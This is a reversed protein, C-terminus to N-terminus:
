EPVPQTGAQLDELVKIRKLAEQLASTLIPIVDTYSVQQYVPNNNEDVADKEGTVANPLVEQLEHAIFGMTTHENMEYTSPKLRELLSVPEAIPRINSKLRYDSTSNFLTTGFITGVISGVPSNGTYFTCYQLGASTNDGFNVAGNGAGIIASKIGFYNRANFSEIGNGVTFKGNSTLAAAFNSTNGFQDNNRRYWGGSGLGRQNIFSTQGNFASESWQQSDNWNIYVGQPSGTTCPKGLSTDGLTSAGASINGANFTGQVTANFNINLSGYMNMNGDAKVSFVGGGYSSPQGPFCFVVNNQNSSDGIHNYVTLFSNNTSGNRGLSTYVISSTSLIAAAFTQDTNVVFTRKVELDGEQTLRMPANTFTGASNHSRWEWGGTGSGRQNAFNTQGDLGYASFGNWHIYAGQTSGTNPFINGLFVEGNLIINPSRVGVTTVISSTSVTIQSGFSNM